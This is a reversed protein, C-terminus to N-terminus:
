IELMLGFKKLANLLTLRVLKTVNGYWINGFLLGVSEPNQGFMNALNNPTLTNIFLTFNFSLGQQTFLAFPQLFYGRLKLFIVFGQDTRDNPLM